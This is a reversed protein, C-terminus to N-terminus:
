RTAHHKEQAEPALPPSATPEPSGRRTAASTPAVVIHKVGDRTRLFSTGQSDILLGSMSPLADHLPQLAIDIRAGFEALDVAVQELAKQVRAPDVVRGSVDFREHDLHRVILDDVPAAENLRDVIDQAAVFRRGLTLTAARRDLMQNLADVAARSPLVGRVVVREGRLELELGRLAPEGLADRLQQMPDVVPPSSAVAAGAPVVVASAAKAVSVPVAAASSLVSRPISSPTAAVTCCAVAAIMLRRGVPARRRRVVAGLAAPSSAPVPPLFCRSLLEADDPWDGDAPGICLIVAGFRVPMWPELACIRDDGDPREGQVPVSGPGAAWRAQPRGDADRQLEITAANWDGIFVDLDESAGVVLRHSLWDISVGAHRGSLIRLRTM